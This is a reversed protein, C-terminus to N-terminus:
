TPQAQKLRGDLEGLLVPWNVPKSMVFAAGCQEYCARIKSMDTSGTIVFVPMNRGHETSRIKQILDIGSAGPLGLDVFAADFRLKNFFKEDCLGDEMLIVDYGANALIPKASNRLIADDDVVLVRKRGPSEKAVQKFKQLNGQGM